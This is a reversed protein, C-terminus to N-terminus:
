FALILDLFAKNLFNSIFFTTQLRHIPYYLELKTKHFHDAKLKSPMGIIMLYRFNDMM